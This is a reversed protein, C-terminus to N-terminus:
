SRWVLEVCDDSSNYQLAAKAAGGSTTLTLSPTVVSGKFTAMGSNYALSIVNYYSGKSSTYNNQVFLNGGSGFFRWDANAGRALELAIDGGDSNNIKLNGTDDLIARSNQVAGSAGNFRVLANDTSTVATIFGQDEVWDKTAIGIWNGWTTSNQKRRFAINDSYYSIGLQGAWNNGYASVWTAAQASNDFATKASANSTDNFFYFGSTEPTNEASTKYHSLRTPLTVYAKESSLAVALNNPKTSDSYGIQIGGRTGNAALPLSYSTVTETGTTYGTVHGYTDFTLSKVYTRDNATLNSVTSTDAHSLTITGSSTITGTGTLGNNGTVTVSTVTGSGVNSKDLTSGDAMLIQNATGGLKIFKSALINGTVSLNGLVSTSKLQAM